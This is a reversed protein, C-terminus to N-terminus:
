SLNGRSKVVDAAIEFLSVKRM